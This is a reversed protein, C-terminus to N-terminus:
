QCQEKLRKELEAIKACLSDNDAEIGDLCHQMEELTDAALKMLEARDDVGIDARMRKVLEEYM